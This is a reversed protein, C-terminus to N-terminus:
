LRVFGPVLKPWGLKQATTALGCLGALLTGWSGRAVTTSRFRLLPRILVMPVGVVAASSLHGGCTRAPKRGILLWSVPLLLLGFLLGIPPSPPSARNKGLVLGDPGTKAGRASTEHSETVM